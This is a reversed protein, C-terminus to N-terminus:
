MCSFLLIDRQRKYILATCCNSFVTTVYKVTFATFVGGWHCYFLIERKDYTRQCNCVPSALERSRHPYYFWYLKPSTAHYFFYFYFYFFLFFLYIFLLLLLLFSKKEIFYESQVLELNKWLFICTSLLLFITVALDEFQLTVAFNKRINTSVGSSPPTMLGFVQKFWLNPDLFFKRPLKAYLSTFRKTKSFIEHLILM